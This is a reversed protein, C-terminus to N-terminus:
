KKITETNGTRRRVDEAAGRVGQHMGTAGLGAVFGSVVHLADLGCLAPVLLAGAVAALTPIYANPFSPWSKALAGLGLCATTALPIAEALTM